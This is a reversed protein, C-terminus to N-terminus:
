VSYQVYLLFDITIYMSGWYVAALATYQVYLVIDYLLFDIRLGEVRKCCMCM